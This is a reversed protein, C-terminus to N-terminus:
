NNDNNCEEKAQNFPKEQNIPRMCEFPQSFLLFAEPYQAREDFVEKWLKRNGTPNIVTETPNLVTNTSELYFIKGALRV